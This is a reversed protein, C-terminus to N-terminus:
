QRLPRMEYRSISALTHNAVLHKLKDERIAVLMDRVSAGTSLNWYDIAFKPAQENKWEAIDSNPRDIEEICRNYVHIADELMYALSRHSIRPAPFMFIAWFFLDLTQFTVTAMRYFINPCKMELLATFSMRLNDSHTMYRTVTGVDRGPNMVAKTHYVLSGALLPNPLFMGTLVMKSLWVSKGKEEKEYGSMKDVLMVWGNVLSKAGKEASHTPKIQLDKWSVNSFQQSKMANDPTYPSGIVGDWRGTLVREKEKTVLNELSSSTSPHVGAQLTSTKRKFIHKSYRPAFTNIFSYQIFRPKLM